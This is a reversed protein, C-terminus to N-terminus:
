GVKSGFGATRLVARASAEGLPPGCSVNSHAGCAEVRIVFACGQLCALKSMLM